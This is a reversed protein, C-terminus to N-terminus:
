SWRWWERIQKRRYKRVMCGDFKIEHGMIMVSESAKKEKNYIIRMGNGLGM